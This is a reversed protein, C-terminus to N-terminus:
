FEKHKTMSKYLVKSKDYDFAALFIFDLINPNFKLNLLEKSFSMGAIEGPAILKSKHTYLSGLSWLNITKINTYLNEKEEEIYHFIEHALVINKFDVNLNEIKLNEILDEAKKINDEYIFINNPTEFLGFYIYDLTGSKGKYEINLGLKKGLSFPSNDGYTEKLIKAETIGTEISKEIIEEKDEKSIKGSIPDREVQYIAFDESDMSMLNKIMEKLEEKHKYPDTKKIKKKEKKDFISM